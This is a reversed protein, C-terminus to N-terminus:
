GSKFILVAVDDVHFYCFHKLDHAVHSSFHSGVICHWTPYYLQDFTTKLEAAVDKGESMARIATKTATAVMDEPMEVKKLTVTRATSAM